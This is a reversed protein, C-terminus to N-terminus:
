KKTTLKNELKDLRSDLTSYLQEIEHDIRHSIENNETEQSMFKDDIYRYTENSADYIHKINEQLDKVQKKLRVIGLILLVFIVTFMGLGFFYLEEM